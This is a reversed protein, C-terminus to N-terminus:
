PAFSLMQEASLNSVSIARIKGAQHLEAM